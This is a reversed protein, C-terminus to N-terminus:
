NKRKKVITKRNKRRNHRVKRITHSKKTKRKGGGNPTQTKEIYFETNSPLYGSFKIETFIHDVVNEDIKTKINYRTRQTSNEYKGIKFFNLNDKNYTYYDIEKNIGNVTFIDTRFKLNVENKFMNPPEKINYNFKTKDNPDNPDITLNIKEYRTLLETSLKNKYRILNNNLLVRSNELNFSNKLGKFIDEKINLENAKEKLEKLTLKKLDDITVNKISDVFKKIEEKKDYNTLSNPVFGKPVFRNFSFGKNTDPQNSNDDTFNTLFNTLQKTDNRRKFLYM